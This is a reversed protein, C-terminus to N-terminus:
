TLAQSKHCHCVYLLSLIHPLGHGNNEAAVGILAEAFDERWLIFRKYLDLITRASIPPDSESYLITTMDHVIGILKSKQRTTTAQLSPWSSVVGKPTSYIHWRTMDLREDDVANERVFTMDIVHPIRFAM